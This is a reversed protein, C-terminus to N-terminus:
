LLHAVRRRENSRHWAHVVCGCHVAGHTHVPHMCIYTHMYWVCHVAGHTHVPHMCIPSLFSSLMHVTQAELKSRQYWLCSHIHMGDECAHTYICAHVASHSGGTQEEDNLCGPKAAAAAREIKSMHLQSADAYTHYLSTLSAAHRELVRSTAEIYCFRKRFANSNQLARKPLNPLIDSLMFRGVADSVDGITGLKVYVAIACRVLCQMFEQRNLSAKSNFQDEAATIRDVANVIAWITEFEGHHNKKSILRSKEVWAMFGKFSTNYVDPEGATTEVESYLTSYYEHAGYLMRHHQWLVERVEDVEDHTGNRDLDRWTSPDNHCKVIYWALEHSRVAVDWDVDFMARMAESTEFFDRSNGWVKRPSWISGELTWRARKKRPKTKAAIAEVATLQVPPVFRNRIVHRCVDTASFALRTSSPKGELAVLHKRAADTYAVHRRDYAAAAELAEDDDLVGAAEFALEVYNEATMSLMTQM